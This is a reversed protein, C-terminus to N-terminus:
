KSTTGILTLRGRRINRLSEDLINWLKEMKRHERGKVNVLTYVCVWVYKVM